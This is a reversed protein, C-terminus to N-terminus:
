AEPAAWLAVFVRLEPGAEGRVAELERRKEDDRFASRLHSAVQAVEEVQASRFVELVADAGIRRALANPDASVGLAYALVMADDVVSRVTAEVRSRVEEPVGIAETM